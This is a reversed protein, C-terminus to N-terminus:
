FSRRPQPFTARASLARSFRVPRIARKTRVRATSTLITAASIRTSRRRAGFRAQFARIRSAQAAFTIPDALYYGCISNDRRYEAMIKAQFDDLSDGSAPYNVEGGDASYIQVYSWLIKKANSM